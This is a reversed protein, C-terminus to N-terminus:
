KSPDVYGEPMTAGDGFFFKEMEEELFQRAKPDIPTLRYENILMTQHGMWKQWAQKSVNEFIRKGLEGPYPPFDLGEAEEGLMVCKVMRAM